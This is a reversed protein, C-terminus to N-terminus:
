FEEDLACMGFRLPRTGDIDSEFEVTADAAVNKDPMNEPV